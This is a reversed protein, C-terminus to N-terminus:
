APRRAQTVPRDAAPQRHQGPQQRDLPRLDGAIKEAAEGQRREANWLRQAVRLDGPHRHDGAQVGHQQRHRDERHEPGRAVEDHARVRGGGGDQGGSEGAGGSGTRRAVDLEGAQRCQQGASQQQEGSQDPQAEQDVEEGSGHQHAEEGADPHADGGPLDVLHEAYRRGAAARQVPQGGCKALQRVGRGAGHQDRQGHRDGHQAQAPQGASQGSRQERHDAGDHDALGGVQGSPAHGHQAGYRTTQRPQSRRYQAPVVRGGQQPGRHRHEHDDQGLARCGGAGVRGPVVLLEVVVGVQEAEADGVDGGGDGAGEDDVAARGLALHHVRSPAPALQGRQGGARDHHNHQQQQGRRQGVQRDGCQGGDDEQDADLQDVNGPHTANEGDAPGLEHHGQERGGGHHQEADLLADHEGDQGRHHVVQPVAVVRVAAHQDLGGASVPRRQRGHGGGSGLGPQHDVAEARAQVEGVSGPQGGVDGRHDFARVRHAPETQVARGNTVHVVGRRGHQGPQM